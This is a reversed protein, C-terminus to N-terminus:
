FGQQIFVPSSGPNIFDRRQQSARSTLHRSPSSPLYHWRRLFGHDWTLASAMVAFRLPGAARPRRGNSCRLRSARRALLMAAALGGPAAGVILVRTSM